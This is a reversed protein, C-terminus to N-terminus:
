GDGGSAYEQFVKARVGEGVVGDNHFRAVAREEERDLEITVISGEPAAEIANKVLNPFISFCSLAKERAVALARRTVTVHVNKSAAQGQLDTAVKSAVEDLDVTQPHFEYTGQEMRFLDLSLNVMNLIRYGAREVTALLEADEPAIKA